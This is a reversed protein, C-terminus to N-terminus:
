VFPTGDKHSFTWGSADSRAQLDDDPYTGVDGPTRDGVELLVVEVGSDNRFCHANGDGAKFGVCMGPRLVVSGSNTHLTPTGVLVYVFEDQLLHSHRLASAAGPALQTLNVGFNTLGFHDGLPRKTRGSLSAQLMVQVAKPYSSPRARPAVESAVIPAPRLDDTRATMTFPEGAFISPAM